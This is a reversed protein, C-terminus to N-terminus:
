GWGADPSRLGENPQRGESWGESLLLLWLWLLRRLVGRRLAVEHLHLHADVLACDAAILRM